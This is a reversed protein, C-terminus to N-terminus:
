DSDSAGVTAVAVVVGDVVTRGCLLEGRGALLAAAEAVSATGVARATRTSRTPTEVEALQEAGFAVVPVGLAAAAARVGPDAARRDITALCTVAASGAVVSEVARTIKEADTGPRVGLGVIVAGRGATREIMADASDM